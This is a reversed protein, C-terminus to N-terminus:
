AVPLVPVTSATPDGDLSATSRSETALLFFIRARFFDTRPFFSFAFFFQVGRSADVCAHDTECKERAALCQRFTRCGTLSEDAM